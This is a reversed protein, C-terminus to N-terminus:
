DRILAIMRKDDFGYLKGAKEAAVVQEITVKVWVTPKPRNDPIPTDQEERTYDGIRKKPEEVEPPLDDPELCEKLETIKARIEEKKKISGPGKTKALQEELAIIEEEISLVM